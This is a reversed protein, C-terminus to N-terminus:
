TTLAHNIIDTTPGGGGGYNWTVGLANTANNYYQNEYDGVFLVRGGANLYSTLNGSMWQYYEEGPIGATTVAMPQGLLYVDYFDLLTSTPAADASNAYWYEVVAGLDVLQTVLSDFEFTGSPRGTDAYFGLEVSGYIGFVGKNTTYGDGDSGWRFYYNTNSSVFGASGTFNSTTPGYVVNPPSPDNPISSSYITFNDGSALTLNNLTLTVTTAGPYSVNYWTYQNATDDYPKQWNSAVGLSTLNGNAQQSWDHDVDSPTDTSWSGDILIRKGSFDSYNVVPVTFEKKFVNGVSNDAQKPATELIDLAELLSIIGKGQAMENFGLDTAGQRLAIKIATASAGPYSEILRASIGATVAAAMATSTFVDFYLTDDDDGPDGQWGGPNTGESSSYDISAGLMFVGPAVVDPKSHESEPVPGRESQVWLSNTETTAGVTLATPASAPSNITYYPAIYDDDYGGPPTFDGAPVIVLAGYSTAAEIVSIIASTGSLDDLLIVDAGHDVAWEIGAIAVGEDYLGGANNTIKVDFLSAEPALGMQTGILISANIQAEYEPDTEYPYPYSFPLDTEIRGGVPGTGAVISALATGRGNQDDTVGPYVDDWADYSDIVKPDNTSWNDDQDDLMPHTEDIGTSLIAIVVGSGTSNDNEAEVLSVTENLLLPFEGTYPNYDQTFSSLKALVGKGVPIVADVHRIETLNPINELTTSVQILPVLKFHREVEVWEPLDPKRDSYSLFVSESTSPEEGLSLREIVNDLFISSEKEFISEINDSNERLTSIDALYENNLSKIIIGPMTVQVGVVLPALVIFLTILLLSNKKCIQVAM